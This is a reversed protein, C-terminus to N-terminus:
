KRGGGQQVKWMKWAELERCCRAYLSNVDDRTSEVDIDLGNATKIKLSNYSRLISVIDDYVICHRGDIFLPSPPLASPPASAQGEESSSSM